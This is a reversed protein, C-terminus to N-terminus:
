SKLRVKEEGYVAEVEVDKVKFNNLNLMNLIHANYGYGKIM